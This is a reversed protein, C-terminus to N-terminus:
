RCGSEPLDHARNVAPTAAINKVPTLPEIAAKVVRKQATDLKAWEPGDRLAVFRNLEDVTGALFPAACQGTTESQSIECAIGGPSSTVSGDGGGSVQTRMGSLAAAPALLTLTTPM